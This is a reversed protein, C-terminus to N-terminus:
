SAGTCSSPPAALRPSSPSEQGRQVGTQPAAPRGGEEHSCLRLCERHSVTWFDGLHPCPSGPHQPILGPWCWHRSTLLQLPSSQSWPQPRQGEERLHELSCPISIGTGRGFTSPASVSCGCSFPPRLAAASGRGAQGGAGQGSGRDPRSPQPRPRTPPQGSPWPRSAHFTPM